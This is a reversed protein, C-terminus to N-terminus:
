RFESITKSNKKCDLVIQYDKIWWFRGVRSHLHGLHVPDLLHHPSLMPPLFVQQKKLVKNKYIISCVSYISIRTNLTGFVCLVM